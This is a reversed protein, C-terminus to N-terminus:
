DLAAARIRYDCGANSVLLVMGRDRLLTARIDGAQLVKHDGRSMTKKM